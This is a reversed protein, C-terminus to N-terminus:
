AGTEEIRRTSQNCLEEYLQTCACVMSEISFRESAARAADSMASRTAPDALLSRVANALAAIDEPPVLLGTRQHEVIEPLSDVDSAIVPVGAAMAEVATIGFGEWRSPMVLVEARALYRGIDERYGPMLVREALGLRAIARELTEREPGEGVIVIQLDENGSLLHPATEVLVDFGKQRDLRGIALITRMGPVLGTTAKARTVRELQRPRELDVGNPIVRLKSEPAGIRRARDRAVAQSVCIEVDIWRLTLRDFRNRWPLSRGEVTHVHSAIRPRNAGRAAVRGIAGAHFLHTHLVDPAFECLDRSLRRLAGALGLAGRWGRQMDVEFVQIGEARLWAGVSGGARLAGVRTEFRDRDLGRVIQYLVREAGAPELETILHYVRTRNSSV